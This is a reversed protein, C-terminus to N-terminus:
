AITTQRRYEATWLAAGIGRVAREPTHFVPIGARQLSIRTKKEEEGGGMFSVALPIHLRLSLDQLFEASRDVPDALNLLLLDVVGFGEICLAARRYHEGEISALDVPNDLHALPLLDLQNLAEILEPEFGPIELGSSAAEDMAISNAGGSTSILAVKRGKLDTLTSLARAYDFLTELDSAVAAGCQRCLASFIRHNGALSGTHSAAARAGGETRGAKLLVVPKETCARKLSEAFRRGDKVSELYMAIVETSDDQALFDIYDSECLDLQNGLNIAASIGFGEDAAWECLVTTISGSESIVAMPGKTDIVPFFMACLKNKLYNIGQINPGLLRFAHKRAVSLLEEELDERGAERFGASLIIAGKAGKMAAQAVVGSVLHAPVIVIVADLREPIHAISPYAKLGQVQDEKPNVPYIHGSYGGRVITELTMGGFKRLDNSAGVVAISRANFISDIERISKKNRHM